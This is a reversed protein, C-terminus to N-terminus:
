VVWLPVLFAASFPVVVALFLAPVCVHRFLQHPLERAGFRALRNAEGKVEVTAWVSRWPAPAAFSKVNASLWAATLVVAKLAAMSPDAATRGVTKTVGRVGVGGLCHM